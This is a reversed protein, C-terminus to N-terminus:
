HVHKILALFEFEVTMLYLQELVEKLVEGPHIGAANGGMM